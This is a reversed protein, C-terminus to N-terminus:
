APGPTYHVTQLVIQGDRVLFTEVGDDARSGTGTAAWELSLVDGELIRTRVDFRAQPLEAFIKTFGQRVGGRGHLVGANTIFLADDAYDSVIDDMDGAVMAQAHHKFVDQATRGARTTM